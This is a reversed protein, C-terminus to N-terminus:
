LLDDGHSHESNRERCRVSVASLVQRGITNVVDRVVEMDLMAALTVVSCRQELTPARPYKNLVSKAIQKLVACEVM